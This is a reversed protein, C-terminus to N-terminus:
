IRGFGNIKLEQKLIEGIKSYEEPNDRILATVLNNGQATLCIKRIGGNTNTEAFGAGLLEDIGEQVYSSYNGRFTPRYELNYGMTDLVKMDRHITYKEACGRISLYALVLHRASTIKM